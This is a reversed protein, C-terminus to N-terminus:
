VVSKRDKRERLTQLYAYRELDSGMAGFTLRCREVQTEISEVQWPLLSELGLARREARSFATGKNLLPDNLLEAGRLHTSRQRRPEAVM